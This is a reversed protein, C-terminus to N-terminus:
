GALGLWARHLSERPFICVILPTHLQLLTQSPSQPTGVESSGTEVAKGTPETGQASLPVM